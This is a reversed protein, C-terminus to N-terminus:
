MEDSTTDRRKGVRSESSRVERRGRHIREEVTLHGWDLSQDQNYQKGLTLATVAKAVPHPSFYLLFLALGFLGCVIQPIRRRM